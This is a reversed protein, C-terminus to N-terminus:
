QFVVTDNEPSIEVARERITGDPMRAKFLHVGAELPIGALPTEGLDRGDVEIVAWPTANISVAVRAAPAPAPVPVPAPTVLAAASRRPAPTPPPRVSEPPPAFPDRPAAPGGPAPDVTAQRTPAERTESGPALANELAPLVSTEFVRNPSLSMWYLSGAIGLAFGLFGLTRIPLDRPKANV